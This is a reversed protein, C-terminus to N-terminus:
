ATDSAQTGSPTLNQKPENLIETNTLVSVEHGKSAM